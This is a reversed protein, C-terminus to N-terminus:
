DQFSNRIYGYTKNKTHSFAASLAAADVAPYIGGGLLVSFIFGKPPDQWHDFDNTRAALM